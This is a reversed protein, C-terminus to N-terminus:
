HNGAIRLIDQRVFRLDTEAKMKVYHKCEVQREHM